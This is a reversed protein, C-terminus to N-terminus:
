RGVHVEKWSTEGHCRSCDRGFAGGHVDEGAHCAHCAGPVRIEGTVPVAHCAHCDVDAHAGHLTFSTRADHDFSWRDWGNPTHCLACAEGLRGEHFDDPHCASCATDADQYRATPHCEECAVVAHLGLLPFRTLDHDFSVREVWRTEEHCRECDKGEQGQHVDDAAHCGFCTTALEEEGLVGRHCADCSAERHSGRLPFDTDRDHDFAVTRWAETGHCDGCARGRRGRHEDDARHCSFCDSPTKEEYLVGTHCAACPADRHRGSLPYDTDRGHDFVLRKWDEATHCSECRPGFRGRHADDLV